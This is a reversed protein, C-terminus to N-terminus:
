RRDYLIKMQAKLYDNLLSLHAANGVHFRGGFVGPARDTSFKFERDQYRHRWVFTLETEGTLASTVAGPLDGLPQRDPHSRRFKATVRTGAGPRSTIKLCGDCSEAAMSLLALGLGVRRTKRSTVFPSTAAAVQEATMGRGNDEVTFVLLDGEPNDEVRLSIETAGAELSNQLLDLIHLSLEHL